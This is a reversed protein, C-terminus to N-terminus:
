HNSLLVLLLLWHNLLPGLMFFQHNSLLVLLFYPHNSFLFHWILLLVLLLFLHISFIISIDSDQFVMQDENLMLLNSNSHFINQFWHEIIQWLYVISYQIIRIVKQYFLREKVNWAIVLWVYLRNLLFM